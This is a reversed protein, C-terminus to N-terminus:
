FAWKKEAKRNQFSMLISKKIKSFQAARIGARPNPKNYCL